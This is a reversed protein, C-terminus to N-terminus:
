QTGPEMGTALVGGAQVQVQTPRWTGTGARRPPRKIEEYIKCIPISLFNDLMKIEEYIKRCIPKVDLQNNSMKMPKYNTSIFWDRSISDSSAQKFSTTCALYISRFSNDNSDNERHQVM